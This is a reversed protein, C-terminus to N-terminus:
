SELSQKAYKCYFYCGSPKESRFDHLLRVAPDPHINSIKLLLDKLVINYDNYNHGSRQEELKKIVDPKTHIQQLGKLFLKNETNQFDYSEYPQYKKM